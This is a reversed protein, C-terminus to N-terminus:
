WGCRMLSPLFCWAVFASYEGRFPRDLGHRLIGDPPRGRCVWGDSAVHVLVARLVCVCLERLREALGDFREVFEDARVGGLRLADLVGAACEFAREGLAGFSPEVVGRLGDAGHEVGDGADLPM